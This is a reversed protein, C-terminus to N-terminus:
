AGTRPVSALGQAKRSWDHALFFSQDSCLVPLCGLSEAAHVLLDKCVVRALPQRTFPHFECCSTQSAPGSQPRMSARTTTMSVPSAGHVYCLASRPSRIELSTKEESLNLCTPSTPHLLQNQRPRHHVYETARCLVEVVRFRM